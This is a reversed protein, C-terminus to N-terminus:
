RVAASFLEGGSVDALARDKSQPRFFFSAVDHPAHDPTTERFDPM